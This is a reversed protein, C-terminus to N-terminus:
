ALVADDTASKGDCTDAAASAVQTIAPIGVMAGAVVAVALSRRRLLSVNM